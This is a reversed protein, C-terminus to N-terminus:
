CLPQYLMQPCTVALRAERLPRRQAGGAGREADSVLPM